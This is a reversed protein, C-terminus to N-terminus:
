EVLATVREAEAVPDGGLRLVDADLEPTHAAAGGLAVRYKGALGTLESAVPRVRDATVASVVILRPKLLDSAHEITELPTDAGFYSIRWGRSRLALGFALAGLDHQEGALCAILALPGAGLGWGRALGLMRGRLVSAAFHEQAVSAEGREWRDGLDRLFPVIVEFLVLDVTATALLRDLVTQAAPEDFGDLAGRLDAIASEPNLLPADAPPVGETVFTAAEAAAMGEGILRQMTRVRELDDLSYLRLGGKSRAPSLVGYRREWARLLEPSVGARRSLEGIRLPGEAVSASYRM